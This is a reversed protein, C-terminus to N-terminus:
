HYGTAALELSHSPKDYTVTADFADFLDALEAPGYRALAPRLDPVSALLAEIEHAQPTDGRRAELQRRHDDLAGRQGALEEIRTKAAAVTLAQSVEALGIQGVPTSRYV